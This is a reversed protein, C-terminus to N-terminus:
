NIDDTYRLSMIQAIPIRRIEAVTWSNTRFWWSRGTSSLFSESATRPKCQKEKNFFVLVNVFMSEDADSSIEAMFPIRANVLIQSKAAWTPISVVCVVEVGWSCYWTYGIRNRTLQLLILIKAYYSLFVNWFWMNTLEVTKQSVKKTIPPINTVQEINRSNSRLLPFSLM